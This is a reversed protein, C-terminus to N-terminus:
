VMIWRHLWGVLLWSVVNIAVYVNERNWQLTDM